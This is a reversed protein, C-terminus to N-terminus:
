MCSVHSCLPRPGEGEEQWDGLFCGRSVPFVFDVRWNRGLSGLPTSTDHSARYDGSNPFHEKSQIGEMYGVSM